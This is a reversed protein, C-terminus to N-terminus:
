KLNLLRPLDKDRDMLIKDLGSGKGRECVEFDKEDRGNRKLGYLDLFPTRL